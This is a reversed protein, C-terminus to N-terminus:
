RLRFRVIRDPGAPLGLPGECLISLAQGDWFAGDPRIVPLPATDVITLTVGPDVWYVADSLVLLQNDVWELTHCAGGPTEWVEEIM